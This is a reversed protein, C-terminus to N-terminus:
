DPYIKKYYEVLEKYENLNKVNEFDPDKEISTGLHRNLRVAKMIAFTIKIRDRNNQLAQARALNYLTGIPVEPTSDIAMQAYKEAERLNFENKDGSKYKALYLATLNHLADIQNKIIINAIAVEKIAKDYNKELSAKAAQEFHYSFVEIIHNSKEIETKPIAIRLQEKKPVDKQIDVTDPKSEGFRLNLGLIKCEILEKLKELVGIIQQRFFLVSLLFILLPWIIIRLLDLIPASLKLVTEITEM